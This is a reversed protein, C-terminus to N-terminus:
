LHSDDDQDEDSSKQQDGIEMVEAKQGKVGGNSINAIGPLTVGALLCVTTEGGRSCLSVFDAADEELAFARTADGAIVTTSSSGSHLEQMATMIAKSGNRCRGYQAEGFLGVWLVHTAKALLKGVM